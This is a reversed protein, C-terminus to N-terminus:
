PVLLAATKLAQRDRLVFFCSAWSIHKHVCWSGVEFAHRVAILKDGKQFAHEILQVVWM